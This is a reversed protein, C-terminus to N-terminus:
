PEARRYSFMGEGGYIKISPAPSVTVEPSSDTRKITVTGDTHLGSPAQADAAALGAYHEEDVAKAAEDIRSSAIISGFLLTVSLAAILISALVEILTEGRDNQLKKM